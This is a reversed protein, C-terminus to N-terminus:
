SVAGNLLLHTLPFVRQMSIRRGIDMDMPSYHIIKNEIYVSVRRQIALPPNGFVFRLLCLSCHNCHPSQTFENPIQEHLAAMKGAAAPAAAAVRLSCSSNDVLIYDTKILMDM